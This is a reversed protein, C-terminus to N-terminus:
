SRPRRQAATAELVAEPRRRGQRRRRLGGGREGPGHGGDPLPAGQRHRDRRHRHAAPAQAQAQRLPALPRAEPHGQDHGLQRGPAVAVDRITMRRATGPRLARLLLHLQATPRRLPDRGTASRWLDPMRRTPHAPGRLDRPPRHARESAASSRAACLVQDLRLRLLSLDRAGPPYHLDSQGGQYDTRTYQYGRIGFAHYLLSTSM